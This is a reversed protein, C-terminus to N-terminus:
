EPLEGSPPASPFGYRERLIRLHHDVHGALIWALARASVPGGGATGRRDAAEGPLGGLLALTNARAARFEALHEALTRRDHEAVAVWRADDFGPLPTPDARAIRLLRYAMVREVDSLHAVVERISWKEPAYRHLGDSAALLAALEDPQAALRSLPDSVPELYPAYGPAFEDPAPRTSFSM